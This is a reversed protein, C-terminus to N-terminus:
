QINIIIWNIQVPQKNQAYVLNENHSLEYCPNSCATTAVRDEPSHSTDLNRPRNQCRKHPAVAIIADCRHSTFCPALCVTHNGSGM